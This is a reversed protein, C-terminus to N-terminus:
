GIGDMTSNYIPIEMLEGMPNLPQVCMETINVYYDCINEILDRCAKTDHAYSWSMILILVVIIVVTFFRGWSGGTILNFYNIKGDTNKLPHVIRYGWFKNHHVEVGDKIEAIKM